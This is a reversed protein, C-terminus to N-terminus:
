VNKAKKLEEKTKLFEYVAKYINNGEKSLSEASFYSDFIEIFKLQNEEDMVSSDMILAFDILYDMTTMLQTQDKDKYVELVCRIIRNKTDIYLSQIKSYSGKTLLNEFAM